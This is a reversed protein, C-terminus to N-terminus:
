LVSATRAGLQGSLKSAATRLVFGILDLHQDSIQDVTGSIGIAAIVIASYAISM